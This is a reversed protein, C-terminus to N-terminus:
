DVMASVVEPKEDFWDQPKCFNGKADSMQIPFQSSQLAGVRIQKYFNASKNMPNNPTGNRQPDLIGIQKKFRYRVMNVPTHFDSDGSIIVAMDFASTHAHWLLMSALNVDSKKEKPRIVEVPGGGDARRLTIKETIFHGDIIEFKPLTKLARIYALQKQPKDPDDPTGSVPATFYYIYRLDFNTSPLYLECLKRIDLWKYPTGKLCGYYLNFGDVYVFTRLTTM